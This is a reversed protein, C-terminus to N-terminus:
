TLLLHRSRDHDNYGNSERYPGVFYGQIQNLVSHSLDSEATHCYAATPRMTSGNRKNGRLVIAPSVTRFSGKAAFRLLARPKHGAAEQNRKQYAEQLFGSLSGPAGRRKALVRRGTVPTPAGTFTM